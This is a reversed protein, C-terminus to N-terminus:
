RINDESSRSAIESLKTKIVPYIEKAVIQHATSNWHMDIPKFDLRRRNQQYQSSFLPLTDITRYGRSQAIQAFVSLQNDPATQPQPQNQYIKDRDTDIIFITNYSRATSKQELYDLLRNSVQTLDPSKTVTNTKQRGTFQSILSTPNFQLHLNLYRMLASKILVQNVPNPKAPDFKLSLDQSDLFYSGATKTLLSDTIDEKTLLFVFLQPQFNKSAFEASGIYGALSYGPVGLSYVPLNKKQLLTGLQGPLTECYPLMLSQVYSDGIAVVPHANPAYDVDDSFGYNNVKRTQAKHFKWDLSHKVVPLTARLVLESQSTAQFRFGTTVPLLRFFLELVLITSVCGLGILMMLRTIKM